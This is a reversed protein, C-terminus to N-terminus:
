NIFYFILMSFSFVDGKFPLIGRRVLEDYQLHGLFGCASATWLQLEPIGLERAVRGAFSMLADPIICSVPPVEPSANLKKVLEKFPAYCNKRTAVCLAPIDQTADKESEPLGDPITEFRFDPLGKMFEPGLSRLLRKHNFETNVFTIHFGVCRLLKALQMFPNLHGQASMPVCVVHPKTTGSSEM